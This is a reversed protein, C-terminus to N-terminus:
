ESSTSSRELLAQLFTYSGTTLNYQWVEVPSIRYETSQHTQDNYDSVAMYATVNLTDDNGWSGSAIVPFTEYNPPQPTSSTVSPAQINIAKKNVLDLVTIGYYTAAAGLTSAVRIGFYKNDSSFGFFGVWGADVEGVNEGNLYAEYTLNDGTGGTQHLTITEGTSTSVFPVTIQSLSGEMGDFIGVPVRIDTSSVIPTPRSNMYHIWYYGGVLLVLIIIAIILVKKM